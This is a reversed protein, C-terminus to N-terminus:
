LLLRCVLNERSQLESTHEESRSLGAADIQDQNAVRLRYGNRVLLTVFPDNRGAWQFDKVHYGSVGTLMSFVGWPTANGGSWHQRDLKIQFRDRYGSLRPMVREDIADFRLSEIDFWVINHR